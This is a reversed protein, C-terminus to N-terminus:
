LSQFDAPVGLARVKVSGDIRRILGILVNGSGVEVFHRIRNQIMGQVSETWRVRSQMQAAIDARLDEANTLACAAVNGFIPVSTDGLKAMQVTATWEAQISSMLPSHAAISVALPLARKAGAARALEM